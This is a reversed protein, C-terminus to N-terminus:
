GRRRVILMVISLVVTAFVAIVTIELLTSQLVLDWAKGVQTEQLEVVCDAIVRAPIEQDSVLSYRFTDVNNDLLPQMKSGHKVTVTDIVNGDVVFDVKYEYLEWVAYLTVTEGAKALNSAVAGDFYKVKGNEQLAWGKFNYNALVYSNATLKTDSGYAVTMDAMAGGGGNPHFKITFENTAAIRIVVANVPSSIVLEGTEKNWTSRCDMAEISDPLAYGDDPVFTITLKEGVWISDVEPAFTCNFADIYVKHTIKDLYCTLEIDKTPNSLEVVATIGNNSVVTVEAYDAQFQGLTYGQDAIEFTLTVVDGVSITTKGAYTFGEGVISINYVIKETAITVTVNDTPNSLILEGSNKDLTWTAGTVVPAGSLKYGDEVSMAISVTSDEEITTISTDYIVNPANITITYLAPTEQIVDGYTTVFDYCAKGVTVGEGFNLYRYGEAHWTAQGTSDIEWAGFGYNLSLGGNSEVVSMETCAEGDMTTFNVTQTFTELDSPLDEQLFYEGSLTYTEEVATEVTVVVNATPNSLILKGTSENFSSTAGTATVNSVAYGDAPTITLVAIGYTCITTAGAHTSNNNNVTITYEVYPVSNAESYEYFEQSVVQLETGYDFPDCLYVYGLESLGGNSTYATLSPSSFPSPDQIINISVYAKGDYSFNVEQNIEVDSYPMDHWVRKGSVAYGDVVYYVTPLSDPLVEVDAIPAVPISGRVISGISFEAVTANPSTSFGFFVKDGVYDWAVLGDSNLLGYKIVTWMGPTEVFPNGIDYFYLLESGDNNMIALAFDEPKQEVVYLETITTDIAGEYGVAFDATTANATKALGNFLTNKAPTYTTDYECCCSCGFVVSSSTVTLKNTSLGVLWSADITQLETTGDESYISISQFSDVPHSTPFDPVFEALAPVTACALSVLLTVSLIILLLKKNFKM